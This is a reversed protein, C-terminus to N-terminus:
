RSFEEFLNFLFEAADAKSRVIKIGRGQLAAISSRYNLHNTEVVALPLHYKQEALRNSEIAVNTNEGGHALLAVDYPAVLSAACEVAESMQEPRDLLHVEVLPLISFLLSALEILQWGKPEALSGSKILLIRRGYCIVCEHVTARPVASSTYSIIGM